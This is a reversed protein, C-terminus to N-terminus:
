EWCSLCHAYLTVILHTQMVMTAVSFYYTNCIRELHINTAEIIWCAFPVNWIINDDTAEIARGYKEV